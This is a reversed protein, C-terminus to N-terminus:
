WKILPYFKRILPNYIRVGYGNYRGDMNWGSAKFTENATKWAGQSFSNDFLLKDFAANFKTASSNTTEGGMLMPLNLESAVSNAFLNAEIELGVVHGPYSQDHEFAHYAEHSFSFAESFDGANQFSLTGGSGSAESNPQYFAGHQQQPNIPLTYLAESSSLTAWMQAFQKSKLLEPLSKNFAELQQRTLQSTVISDGSPDINLMPNNAAYVYPSWSPFKDALPDVSCFRAPSLNGFSPARNFNWPSFSDRQESVSVYPQWKEAVFFRSTQALAFQVTFVICLLLRFM